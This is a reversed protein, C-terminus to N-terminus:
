RLIVPLFIGWPVIRVTFSGTATKITDNVDISITCTGLWNTQPRLTVFHSNLTATCHPDSSRAGSFALLNVNTEFDYVYRWLDITLSGNRLVNLPPVNLTPSADYDITNQYIARVAWHRDYGIATWRDWYARFNDRGPQTAMVTWIPAFGFGVNDFGDNVPDLLDWLAGAVRGEVIDGQPRNDGWTPTELNENDYNPDNNVALPFFDAWGESWGCGDNIAKWLNHDWCQPGANWWGGTATYMYQHGLEHEATEHSQVGRNAIFLWPGGAGGFFCSNNCAGFNNVAPEYYAVSRGPDVSPSTRSKVFESGRRLDDLIWIAPEEPTNNVIQYGYFDAPGTGNAVNNIVQSIWRYSQGNTHLTARRPVSSNSTDTDWAVLLDLRRDADVADTDWNMEPVFEFSGNALTTSRQLERLSGDGNRDYLYVNLGQAPQLVDGRDFFHLDGRAKVEGPLILINIDDIWPGQYEYIDDSYFLWGVWVTSNGVYPTLDFVEQEWSPNSTEWWFPTWNNGDTSIFFGVKDWYNEIERWLWFNVQASTGARLDFPGYAMWSYMNPAYGSAPDRADRGGGAPWAAWSGSHARYATGTWYRVDDWLYERPNGDLDTTEGYVSWCVSQFVPGCNPFAGELTENKITQLSTRTAPAANSKLGSSPKTESKKPTQTPSAPKNPNRDRTKSNVTGQPLYLSGPKAPSGATQIALPGTPAYDARITFTKLYGRKGPVRDRIQLRWEGQATLGKFTQIGRAEGPETGKAPTGRNWLAQITSTDSRILQIELESPDPHDLVYKVHVETVTGKPPAHPDSYCVQVWSGDDPIELPLESSVASCSAPALSISTDSSPDSERGPLQEDAISAGENLSTLATTELTSLNAAVRGAPAPNSSKVNSHSESQSAGVYGPILLNTLTFLIVAIGLSRKM